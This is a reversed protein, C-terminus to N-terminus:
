ERLLRRVQWLSRGCDCPNRESGAVRSEFLDAAVQVPVLPQDLYSTRPNKSLMM